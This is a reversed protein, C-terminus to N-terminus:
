YAISLADSSVLTRYVRARDHTNQMAFRALELTVDNEVAKLSYYADYTRYQPFARRGRDGLSPRRTLRELIYDIQEGATYVKGESVRMLVPHRAIPGRAKMESSVHGIFAPRTTEIYAYESDDFRVWDSRVGVAVHKQTPLAWMATGYGERVLLAALLVSKESCMGRGNAVVEIPLLVDGETEGYPIAQVACVILELHEDEDLSMEEAIRRFEDALDRIFRSEAQSSVFHPLHRARPYIPTRFARGADIRSALELEGADITVEVTCTTDKFPFSWTADIDRGSRPADCITQTEAILRNWVVWTYAESVSLWVAACVGLFALAAIVPRRKSFDIIRAVM